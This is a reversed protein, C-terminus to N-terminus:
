IWEIVAAGGGLTSSNTTQGRYIRACALQVKDRYVFFRLDYKYTEDPTENGFKVLPAPVIEQALYNESLITDFTKRSISEGKYVAKGGFMRKPKFFFRKKQKWLESPDGFSSIEFTPILARRIVAQHEVSLNKLDGQEPDTLELLRSKDALQRYEHPNPSLCARKEIFAKRLAGSQPTELYFDTHRNYVLDIPHGGHELAEKCSLDNPDAISVRLGAKTFLEEFFKFEVFLKQAEPNEDVIAIWTLPKTKSLSHLAFENKFSELIEKEFDKSYGNDLDHLSYLQSVILSLSANTNIEILRLNGAQDVH